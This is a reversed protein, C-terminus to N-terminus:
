RKGAPQIAGCDASVRRAESSMDVRGFEESTM